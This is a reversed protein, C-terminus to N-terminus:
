AREKSTLTNSVRWQEIEPDEVGAKQLAPELEVSYFTDFAEQSDWVEMVRWCVATPGAAHVLAGSPMVENLELQAILANYEEESVSHFSMIIGHAM